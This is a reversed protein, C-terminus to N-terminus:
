KLVSIYTGLSAIKHFDIFDYSPWAESKKSTLHTDVASNLVTVVRNKKKKKKM